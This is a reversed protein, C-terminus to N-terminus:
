EGGRGATEGKSSGYREEGARRRGRPQNYHKQKKNNDGEVAITKNDVGDNGM